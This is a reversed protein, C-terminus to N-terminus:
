FVGTTYEGPPYQIWVITMVMRAAAGMAEAQVAMLQRPGLINNRSATTQGSALSLNRIFGGFPFGAATPVIRGMRLLHNVADDHFCEVSLYHRTQAADMPLGDVETHVLEIAGLPSVITEIFAAGLRDSGFVDVTPHIVDSVEAMTPNPDRNAVLAEAIWSIARTIRLLKAM